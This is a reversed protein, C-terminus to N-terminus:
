VQCVVERKTKENTLFLLQGPAVSSSLRIVAGNGFVLVTKTTESFPERKDSGEVTRAGNITVPVELAVPQQKIASDGPLASIPAPVQAAEPKAVSIEKEKATPSMAHVSAFFLKRLRGAGSLTGRSCKYTRGAPLAGAM